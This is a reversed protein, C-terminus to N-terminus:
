FIENIIKKVLNKLSHNQEVIKRLNDSPRNNYFEVIKETLQSDECLYKAPLINKFAENSTIVPVNLAMAELVAKDVSGTKSVNIFLDAHSLAQPLKEYTIPGVFEIIDQLKDRTVQIKLESLYKKDGELLTEGIFKLRIQNKIESPLQNVAEIIVALNKRPTIRGVTIINYYDLAPVNDQLKFHELDIGHSTVVIKESNLRCSESSATFIKKVIKEAKILYKSVSKHTYWLYLPKNSKKIEQNFSKKILHNIAVIYEPCMHALVADTKPLLEKAYKRFKLLRCIRSKGEEKGLSFVEVNQPLDYDGKFLTIVFVKEVSKSFEKLWGVFFGLIADQEDVKQTIILLNM